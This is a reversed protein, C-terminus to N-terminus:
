IQISFVSNRNRKLIREDLEVFKTSISQVVNSNKVEINQKLATTTEPEKSKMEIEPIIICSNEYKHCSEVHYELLLAMDFIKPCKSCSHFQKDDHFIELHERLGIISQFPRSCYECNIVEVGERCLHNMIENEPLHISCVVCLQKKETSKKEAYCQKISSIEFLKEKYRQKLEEYKITM